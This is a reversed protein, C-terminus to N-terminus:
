VLGREEKSHVVMCIYTIIILEHTALKLAVLKERLLM